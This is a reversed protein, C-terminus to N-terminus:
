HKLLEPNQHINGIVRRQNDDSFCYIARENSFSIFRAFKDDWEVVTILDSLGTSLIDGEYIETGNKDKLGTSQMLESHYENIHYIDDDAEAFIGNDCEIPKFYVMRNETIGKDTDVECFARFKIERNM